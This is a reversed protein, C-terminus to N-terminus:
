QAVKTGLKVGPETIWQWNDIVVTSDIQGDSADYVGWRISVASGPEVPVTTTLWGTAGRGEFGTGMLQSSGLACTFTKNGMGSMCPGGGCNCVRFNAGNLTVPSGMEDYAINADPQGALQPTLITFFVDNFQSCVLDPFDRAYFSFDYSFGHANTPVRVSIALATADWPSGSVAGGCAPTEKPFGPAVPSTYNKSFSVSMNFGPDGPRRAAGSSLALIKKGARPKVNPGFDPLVGHGLHFNTASQGNAPAASGDALTWVGGIIGWDKDGTSAKCLDLAHAALAPLPEDIPLSDDCTAAAEDTTSDCNDDVQNGAIDYAGPNVAADCDNCDGQKPTYGDGDEDGDPKAGDCPGSGAAGATGAAGAAGATGGVPNVTDGAAGAMPSGAAGSGGVSGTPSSGGGGPGSGGAQGPPSFVDQLDISCAPVALVTAFLLFSLSRRNM